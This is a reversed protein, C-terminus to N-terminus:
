EVIGLVVNPVKSGLTDLTTDKDNPITIEGAKLSKFLKEYDDKNFKKFQSTKMPLGVGDKDAGLVLAEGGPFKDEKYATLADKVAVSLGKLASTIVTKSQSSQDVDVGIVSGKAEEAAASISDFIAGGCSFIVETGAAYWGAAKAKIDPSAVFGGTYNYKLDVNIGMEKAADNAGQVFGYGYRIVAPVAMGGMFGIKTYGDKVAAYGALYGAQEEAFTIGVTNKKIVPTGTEDKPDAPAGDILIFKVDPYKDQATFITENFLFGPTAIVKAGNKVALDIQELRADNTNETPQYYKYTLGNEEAWEKVGEWTGQNFSKDDITGVDTIMAVEYGEKKDGGGCAFLVFVMSLCLALVLAKKM